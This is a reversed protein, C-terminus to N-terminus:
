RSRAAASRAADGRRDLDPRSRRGARRPRRYCSRVASSGARAAVAAAHDVPQHGVQGLGIRRRGGPDRRAQADFSVGDVSKAVRGGCSSIPAASRRAALVIDDPLVTMPASGGAIRAAASAQASTGRISASEGQSGSRSRDLRPEILRTLHRTAGMSDAIARTPQRDARLRHVRRPTGAVAPERDALGVVAMPAAHSSGVVQRSRCASPWCSRCPPAWTGSRTTSPASSAPRDLDLAAAARARDCSRRGQVLLLRRRPRCRPPGRGVACREALPASGRGGHHQRRGQRQLLPHRRRRPRPARSGRRLAAAARRCAGDAAAEPDQRGEQRDQGPHHGLLRPHRPERAGQHRRHRRPQGRRLRPHPRHRDVAIDILESVATAPSSASRASTSSRRSASARRARHRIRPLRPFQGRRGLRCRGADDRRARRRLSRPRISIDTGGHWVHAHLDVWGPSVIPARALRRQQSETRRRCTRARDGAITVTPASWSTSRAQRRALASLRGAEVNPRLLAVSVHCDHTM